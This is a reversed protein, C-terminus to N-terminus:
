AGAILPTLAEPFQSAFAGKLGYVAPRGAESGETRSRNASSGVTGPKTGAGPARPGPQGNAARQTWAASTQREM